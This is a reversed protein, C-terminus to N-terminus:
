SIIYGNSRTSPRNTKEAFGPRWGHVNKGIQGSGDVLLDGLPSWYGLGLDGQRWGKIRLPGAGGAPRRSQRNFKLPTEPQNGVPPRFKPICGTGPTEALL